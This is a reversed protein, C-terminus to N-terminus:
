DSRRLLNALIDLETQDLYKLLYEKAGNYKTELYTLFERMYEPKTWFLHESFPQGDKHTKLLLEDYLYSMLSSSIAYNSIIDGNPVGSLKLLLATIIGTRDKGAVCHFIIREDKHKVMTKFVQGIYEGSEDLIDKYM